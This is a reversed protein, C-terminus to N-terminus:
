LFSLRKKKNTKDIKWDYKNKFVNFFFTMNKYTKDIKIITSVSQQSM